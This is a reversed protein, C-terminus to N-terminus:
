ETQMKADISTPIDNELVYLKSFEEYSSYGFANAIKTKEENVDNKVESYYYKLESNAAYIREIFTMSDVADDDLDDESELIEMTEINTEINNKVYTVSEIINKIHLKRGRIRKMFLNRRRDKNIILKESIYKTLAKM